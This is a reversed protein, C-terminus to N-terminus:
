LCGRVWARVCTRVRKGLTTNELHEREGEEGRRVGPPEKTVGLPRGADGDGSVASGGEMWWAFAPVQMCTNM